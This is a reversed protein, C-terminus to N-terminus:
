WIGNAPWAVRNETTFYVDYLTQISHDNEQHCDNLCAALESLKAVNNLRQLSPLLTLLLANQARLRTTSRVTYAGNQLASILVIASSLAVFTGSLTLRVVKSPSSSAHSFLPHGVKPPWMGTSSILRSCWASTDSFLTSTCTRGRRVRDYPLLDSIAHLAVTSAYTLTDQLLM